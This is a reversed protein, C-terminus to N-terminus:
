NALDVVDEIASLELSLPPTECRGNMEKSQSLIELWDLRENLEAMKRLVMECLIRDTPVFSLPEHEAACDEFIGSSEVHSDGSCSGVSMSSSALLLPITEPVKKEHDPEDTCVSDVGKFAEKDSQEHGDQTIEDTESGSGSLSGTSSSDTTDTTTDADEHRPEKEVTGALAPVIEVDMKEHRDDRLTPRAVLFLGTAAVLLALFLAVHASLFLRHGLSEEFSGASLVEEAWTVIRAWGEPIPPSASSSTPPPSSSTRAFHLFPQVVILNTM